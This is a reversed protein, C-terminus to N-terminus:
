RRASGGSAIDGVPPLGGTFAPAKAVPHGHAMVAATRVASAFQLEPGGGDRWKSGWQQQPGEERGSTSARAPAQAASLADMLPELRPLLAVQATHLPSLSATGTGSGPAHPPAVSRQPTSTGRRQQPSEGDAPPAGGPPPARFGRGPGPSGSGPPTNFTCAAGSFFAALAAQSDPAGDRGVAGRFQRAPSDGGQQQQGPGATGISPLNLLLRPEANAGGVGPCSGLELRGALRGSSGVGTGGSAQWSGGSGGGDVEATSLPVPSANHSDRLTDRILGRPRLSASGHPAWGLTALPTSPPPAVAAVRDLSVRGHARDLLASSSAVDLSARGSSRLLPAVLPATGLSRVDLQVAGGGQHSSALARGGLQESPLGSPLRGDASWSLASDSPPPRGLSRGPGWRMPITRPRSLGPSNSNLRTPHPEFAALEATSDAMSSLGMRLQELLSSVADPGRAQFAGPLLSAAKQSADEKETQGPPQATANKPNLPPRQKVNVRDEGRPHFGHKEQFATMSRRLEVTESRPILASIDQSRHAKRWQPGDIRVLLSGLGDPHHRASEEWDDGDDGGDDGVGGDEEEVSEREGDVVLRARHFQARKGAVKAALFAPWLAQHQAEERDSLVDFVATSDVCRRLEHRWRLVTDAVADSAVTFLVRLVGGGRPEVGIGGVAPKANLLSASVVGGDAPERRGTGGYLFRVVDTALRVPLSTGDEAAAAIREAAAATAEEKDMRRGGGALFWNAGRAVPISPVFDREVVDLEALTPCETANKDNVCIIAGTTNECSRTNNGPCETADAPLTCAGPRAFIGCERQVADLDAPAPCITANSHICVVDGVSNACTLSNNGPCVEANLLLCPTKSAGFLERVREKMDAAQLMGRGGRPKGGPKGGEAKTCNSCEREVDDLDAPAPCETANKDNVCIIAGATNECSRTSNGPCEPAHAPLACAGPRMHMGCEEEVADLDVPAPCITANSHICVVDGVSNACTLSHNGPCVEANLLLCPTKSAGFLERVREKMDAAQLMGRGGRPKGGPKGGEAKTCNSCEREVDDLDAPAPCETANKDNVCIIAGATNECSRTSNGPCEPAHAPLACAGPRTHMGCEEEVADLDVPAPCITANSHICVVDGVSNACTLSHNGPCVEADLLLCPTESSRFRGAHAGGAALLAM